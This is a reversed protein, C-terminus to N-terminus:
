PQVGPSGAAPGAGTTLFSGLRRAIAGLKTQAQETEGLARYIIQPSANGQTVAIAAAVVDGAEQAFGAVDDGLARYCANAASSALDLQHAYAEHFPHGEGGAAAYAADLAAAQAITPCTASSPRAWEYITRERRRVIQAAAAYGILGAVRTAAQAFSLPARAQTM